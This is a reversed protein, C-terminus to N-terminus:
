SKGRDDPYIKFVYSNCSQSEGIRGFTNGEPQASNPAKSIDGSGATRYPVQIQAVVIHFCDAAFKVPDRLCYADFCLIQVDLAREHVLDKLLRDAPYRFAEELGIDRLFPAM